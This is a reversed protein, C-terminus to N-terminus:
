FIGTVRLCVDWCCLGALAKQTKANQWGMHVCASSFKQGYSLQISCCGELSHTVPEIGTPCVVNCADRAAQGGCVIGRPMPGMIAANIGLGM